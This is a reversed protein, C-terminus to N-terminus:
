DKTINKPECVSIGIKVPIKDCTKKIYHLFSSSIKGVGKSTEAFHCGCVAGCSLPTLM